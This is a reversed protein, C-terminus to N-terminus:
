LIEDDKVSAQKKSKKRSLFVLFVNEYLYTFQYQTQIMNTQIWNVSDM